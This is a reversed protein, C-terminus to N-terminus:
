DMQQLLTLLLSLDPPKEKQTDEELFGTFLHSVLSTTVEQNVRMPCTLLEHVSVKGPAHGTGVRAEARRWGVMAM